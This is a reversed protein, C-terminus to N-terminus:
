HYELFLVKAQVLEYSSFSVKSLLKKLTVWWLSCSPSTSPLSSGTPGPEPTAAITAMFTEPDRAVSGTSSASSMASSCSYSSAPCDSASTTGVLSVHGVTIM